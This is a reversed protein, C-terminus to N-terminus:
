RLVDQDFTIIYYKETIKISEHFTYNLEQTKSKPYYIKNTHTILQKLRKTFIKIAGTEISSDSLQNLKGKTFRVGKDLVSYKLIFTYM